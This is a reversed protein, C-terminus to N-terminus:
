RRTRRRNQTKTTRRKATRKKATAKKRKKPNAKKRRKPTGALHRDLVLVKAGTRSFTVSQAKVKKGGPLTVNVPNKTAHRVKTVTSKLVRMARSRISRKKAM